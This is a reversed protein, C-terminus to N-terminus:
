VSSRRHVNHKIHKKPKPVKPQIKVAPKEKKVTMNVSSYNFVSIGNALDSLSDSSDDSKTAM